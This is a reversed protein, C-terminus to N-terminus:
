RYTSVDHTIDYHKHPLDRQPLIQTRAPAPPRQSSASPTSGGGAASRAGAPLLAHSAPRAGRARGRGAPVAVGGGEVRWPLVRVVCGGGIAFGGM